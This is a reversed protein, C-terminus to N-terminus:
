PKVEVEVKVRGQKERARRSRRLGRWAAKRLEEDKEAGATGGIRRLEAEAPESAIAALAEIAGLRTVEPL